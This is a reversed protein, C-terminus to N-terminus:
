RLLSVLRLNDKLILDFTYQYIELIIKIEEVGVNIEQNDEEKIEEQNYTISECASLSLPILLFLLKMLRKKMNCM